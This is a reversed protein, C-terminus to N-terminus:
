QKNLQNEKEKEEKLLRSVEQEFKSSSYKPIEQGKVTIVKGEVKFELGEKPLIKMEIATRIFDNKEEETKKNQYENVFQLAKVNPADIYKLGELFSADDNIEIQNVLSKGNPLALIKNYVSRDILAGKKFNIGGVKIDSTVIFKKNKLYDSYKKYIDYKLNNPASDIINRVAMESEAPTKKGDTILQTIVKLKNDLRVKVDNELRVAKDIEKKDVPKDYTYDLFKSGFSNGIGELVNEDYILKEEPTMDAVVQRYGGDIARFYINDKSLAIQKLALEINVPAVDVTRGLDVISKPTKNRGTPVYKLGESRPTRDTWVNRKHYHDYGHILAGYAAVTPISYPSIEPIAFTNRAAEFLIEQNFKKGMQSRISQETANSLLQASQTKPIKIYAREKKGDITKSYPLIIIFNNLKIKEDIKEYDDENEPRLNYLILGATLMAIQGYTLATGTPDDVWSKKAGEVARIGANFFPYLTGAIDSVNGKKSYDMISRAADAAMRKFEVRQLENPQRGGNEKIFKNILNKETRSYIALRTMIESTSGLYSLGDYIKQAGKALGKNENLFDAEFPSAEQSLTNFGGGYTMLERYLKGKTAADKSVSLIDKGLKLAKVPLFGGRYAESHMLANLWDKPLNGLFFKPNITVASISTIGVLSAFRLVKKARPDLWTQPYEFTEIFKIPAIISFYKGGVAEIQTTLLAGNPSNLIDSYVEQSIPIGKKYDVGDLTFDVTPIYEMERGFIQGEGKKVESESFVPRGENNVGSPKQERFLGNNPDLRVFDLLGVRANNSYISRATSMINAKMLWEKNQVMAGESGLEIKKIGDLSYSKNGMRYSGGSGDSLVYELFQRKSYENNILANYLEPSIIGANKKALLLENMFAFYDTARDNLMEFTKKAEPDTTNELSALYAMATYISTSEGNEAATHRVNQRDEVAKIEKNIRAIEKPDTASALETNLRLLDAEKKEAFRKDISIITRMEIINNLMEKKAANLGRFIPAGKEDYLSKAYSKAGPILNQLRLVRRAADVLKGRERAQSITNAGSHYNPVNDIANNTAKDILRKAPLHNGFISDYAAFYADIIKGKFTKNLKNNEDKERQLASAQTQVLRNEMDDVTNIVTPVGSLLSQAESWALKLAGDIQRGAVNSFQQINVIGLRIADVALDRLAMHFDFRKKAEVKPDFIIGVNSNYLAKFKNKVDDITGSLKEKAEKLKLQADTLPEVKGNTKPTETVPELPIGLREAAVQIEKDTPETLGEQVVSQEGGKDTETTAPINEQTKTENQKNIIEEVAKVLEPNSGDEKAKHYAESISKETTTFGLEEIGINSPKYNRKEYGVLDLPQNPNYKDISSPHQKDWEVQIKTPINNIGLKNAADIRHHGEQVRLTNEKANYILVIPEKIGNKQIDEVLSQQSEESRHLRGKPIKNIEELSLEQEVLHPIKYLEKKVGEL